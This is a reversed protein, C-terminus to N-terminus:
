MRRPPREIQHEDELLADHERLAESTHDDVVAQDDDSAADQSRELALLLDPAAAVLFARNAATGVDENLQQMEALGIGNKAHVARVLNAVLETRPDVPLQGLDEEVLHAAAVMQGSRVFAMLRVRFVSRARFAFGTPLSAVEALAEATRGLVALAAAHETLLEPEVVDGLAARAGPGEVYGLGRESHELASDFNGTRSSLRALTLSAIALHTPAITRPLAELTRVASENAGEALSLYANSIARRGRTLGYARRAVWLGCAIALLAPLKEVLFQILGVFARNADTPGIAHRGINSETLATVFVLVLLVASAIGVVM